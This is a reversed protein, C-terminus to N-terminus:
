HAAHFGHFDGFPLSLCPGLARHSSSWSPLLVELSDPVVPIPIGCDSNGRKKRM